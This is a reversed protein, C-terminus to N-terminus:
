LLKGLQTLADVYQSLLWSDFNQNQPRVSYLYALTHDDVPEELSYYRIANVSLKSLKSLATHVTETDCLSRLPQGPILDAPNSCNYNANDPVYNLDGNYYEKVVSALEIPNVNLMNNQLM